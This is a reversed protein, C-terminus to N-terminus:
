YYGKALKNVEYKTLISALVDCNKEKDSSPHLKNNVEYSLGELLPFL